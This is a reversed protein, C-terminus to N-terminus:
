YLIQSESVGEGFYRRPPQVGGIKRAMSRTFRTPAEKAEEDTIASNGTKGNRPKPRQQQTRRRQTSPRDKDSPLLPLVVPAEEISELDTVADELLPPIDDVPEEVEPPPPPPTKPPCEDALSVQNLRQAIEQALPATTLHYNDSTTITFEESDPQRQYRAREPNGRYRAKRKVDRDVISENM